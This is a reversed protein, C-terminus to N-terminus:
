APRRVPTMRDTVFTRSTGDTLNKLIYKAIDGRRMEWQIPGTERITVRASLDRVRVREAPFAPPRVFTPSEFSHMRDAVVQGAKRMEEAWQKVFDQATSVLEDDSSIFRIDALRRSVGLFRMLDETTGSFGLRSKAEKLWSSDTHLTLNVEPNFTVAEALVTASDDRLATTLLIKFKVWGGVVCQVNIPPPPAEDLEFLVIRRPTAV